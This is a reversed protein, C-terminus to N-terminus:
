RVNSEKMLRRIPAVIIHKSLQAVMVCVNISRHHVVALDLKASKLLDVYKIVIKGLLFTINTLM